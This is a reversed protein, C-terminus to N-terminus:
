GVMRELIKDGYLGLEKRFAPKSEAWPQLSTRVYDTWYDHVQAGTLGDRTKTARYAEVKKALAFVAQWDGKNPSSKIQKTAAMRAYLPQRSFAYDKYFGPAFNTAVYRALVETYGAPIGRHGEPQSAKYQDLVEALKSWGRTVAPTSKVGVLAKDFASLTRWSATVNHHITTQQDAPTLMTWAIRVPSPFEKGGVVIPKDQDDQWAREEAMQAATMGGAASNEKARKAVEHAYALYKRGVNTLTEQDSGALAASGSALGQRDLSGFRAQLIQPRFSHVLRVDADWQRLEKGGGYKSLLGTRFRNLEAPDTIRALRATFEETQGDTLNGAKQMEKIDLDTREVDTPDRGWDKQFQSYAWSRKGALSVAERVDQPVKRGVLGGQLKLAQQILSQEHKHRAEPTQDAWFRAAGAEPDVVRATLGGTVLSGMGDLWGPSFVVRKLASHEQKVLTRRDTPDVPSLPPEAAARKGKALAAAQPLGQLLERASGAWQGGPYENGFEDRGTAGHIVFKAFPGFLDETSAYKDGQLGATGVSLLDGMTSFSNVSAPNVVKPSGDHTFGVPVYGTRKFWEPLKSLVPDSDQDDQAIKGLHVLVASQVPHELVTRVSWVASRSVWPYVFIIHRFVNKEYWTLNNFEVMAKNARKSAQVLKPREAEDFLLHEMGAQDHAGMRRLEHILAARRFYQDTYRSWFRAMGQSVKTAATDIGPAVYSKSRGEGVLADLTRSVKEGFLRDSHLARLMNPPFFYGQHMLGMAVNGLANLAYAPRLLLAIDRFPENIVQGARQVNKFKEGVPSERSQDLLRSDVWKVGEIGATEDPFLHEHMADLDKARLLNADAATFEGEDVRSLLNRLEGPIAASERIPVSWRNVKTDTAADLLHKYDQLVTVARVTRAYAESALGTADIRFDGALISQGSFSHTLEPPLKPAPIGYPGVRPSFGGQLMKAQKGTRTKSTSPLYFSDPNQRGAAVAQAPTEGRYVGGGALVRREATTPVLGLEAIKAAEQEAVAQKTLELAKVFRPRPNQLAKEALKLAGLQFQHAAPDGIQHDIAWQHFSRMANLPDADDVSLVQIAKQEGVTLGARAKNPVRSLIRAQNVSWGAAADLERATTMAIVQDVRKRAAMERGMKTEPSVTKRLPDLIRDVFDVAQGPMTVALMGAPYTQGGQHRLDMAKNKREINWRQVFRVSPNESALVHETMAGKRLEITGGVPRTLLARGAAAVEGEGLARGAAGVRVAAGSGGGAFGLIDMFLYGPNQTPHEVDRKVGAVSQKGINATRTPTWDGKGHFAQDIDNLDLAISAGLKYIGAPSMKLSTAVQEGGLALTGAAKSAFGADLTSPLLSAEQPTDAQGDYEYLAVGLKAAAHKDSKLLDTLADEHDNLFEDYTHDHVAALASSLLDDDQQKISAPPVSGTAAIARATSDSRIPNFLAPIHEDPVPARAVDFVLGPSPKYGFTQQHADVVAQVRQAFQSITGFYGYQTLSPVPRGQIPKQGPPAQADAFDPEPSQRAHDGSPAVPPAAVPPKKKPATPYATPRPGARDDPRVPVRM